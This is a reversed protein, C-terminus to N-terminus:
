HMNESYSLLSVFELCQSIILFLAEGSEKENTTHIIWEVTVKHVIM